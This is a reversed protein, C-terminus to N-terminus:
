KILKNNKNIKNKGEPKGTVIIKKLEAGRKKFLNLILTKLTEKILNEQINLPEFNEFIETM